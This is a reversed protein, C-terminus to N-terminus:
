HDKNVLVRKGLATHTRWEHPSPGGKERQISPPPQQRRRAKGDHSRGVARRDAKITKRPEPRQCQGDRGNEVAVRREKGCHAVPEPAAALPFAAGLRRTSVLEYRAADLNRTKRM